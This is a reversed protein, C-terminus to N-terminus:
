RLVRGRFGNDVLGGLDGNVREARMSRPRVDASAELM